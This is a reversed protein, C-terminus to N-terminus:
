EGKGEELAKHKALIENAIAVMEQADAADHLKPLDGKRAQFELMALFAFHLQNGTGKGGLTEPMFREDDPHMVGFGNNDVVPNTLSEEFSRFHLVLEPKV